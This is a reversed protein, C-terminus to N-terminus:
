ADYTDTEAFDTTDREFINHNLKLTRVIDGLILLDDNFAELAPKNIKRFMRLQFTKQFDNIAVYLKSEVFSFALKGPHNKEFKTLTEQMHKTLINKATKENTTYLTFLDSFPKSDFSMQSYPRQSAPVGNELIQLAGDFTKNFEFSFVRGKFYPTYSTADNKATTSVKELRMLVVDSSVFSVGDIAGSLFAESNFLDAQEFVESQYVQSEGLGQRPDYYGNQVSDELIDKLVNDKFDDQISVFSSFGFFVTISGVIISGVILIFPGEFVFLLAAIGLTLAGLLLIAEVRTKRNQFQKLEEDM